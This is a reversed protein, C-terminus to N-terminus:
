CARLSGPTRACSARSASRTVSEDNLVAARARGCGSVVAARRTRGVAGQRARQVFKFPLTSAATPAPADSARYLEQISPDVHRRSVYRRAAADLGTIETQSHARGPQDCRHPSHRIQREGGGGRRARDANWQRVRRAARQDARELEVVSGQNLQLLNRISIRSRGVEMSLTVPIDLVVDLNLERSAAPDPAEPKLTDSSPRSRSSRRQQQETSM